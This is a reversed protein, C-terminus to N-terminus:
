MVWINYYTEHVWTIAVLNYKIEPNDILPSSRRQRDYHVDYKYVFTVEFQWSDSADAHTKDWPELALHFNSRFKLYFTWLILQSLILLNINSGLKLIIFKIVLKHYETFLRAARLSRIKNKVSWVYLEQSWQDFHDTCHIKSNWLSEQYHCRMNNDVYWVTSVLGLQLM